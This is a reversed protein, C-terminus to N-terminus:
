KVERMIERVANQLAKFENLSKIREGRPLSGDRVRGRLMESRWAAADVLASIQTNTLALHLQTIVVKVM